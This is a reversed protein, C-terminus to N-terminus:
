RPPRFEHPSHFQVLQGPENPLRSREAFRRRKQPVSLRSGSPHPVLALWSDGNPPTERYPWRNRIARRKMMIRISWSLVVACVIVLIFWLVGKGFAAREESLLSHGYPLASQGQLLLKSCIVLGAVALIAAILCDANRRLARSM